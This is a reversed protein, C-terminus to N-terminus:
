RLGEALSEIEPANPCYRPLPDMPGRAQALWARCDSDRGCRSCRAVLNALEKRTMWGATVAAPLNAGAVRAMGLTLWFAQPNDQQMIM